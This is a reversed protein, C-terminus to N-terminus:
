QPYRKGYKRAQEYQYAFFSQLVENRGNQRIPFAQGNKLIFNNDSLKEIYDMNLIIGRNCLLFRRDRCLVDWLGSFSPVYCRLTDRKYANALVYHGDSSLSMLESYSFRVKQRGHTLELFASTDDLLKRVESLVYDIQERRCPKVLYDFPHVKFADWTHERSTTIFILLCEMDQQRILRATEIGTIGGMYIDLFVVPYQGPVFSKFFDEGSSFCRCSVQFSMNDASSYILSKLQERDQFCDDIVAINM